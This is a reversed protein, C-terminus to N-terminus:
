KGTRWMREISDGLRRSMEPAANTLGTRMPARAPVNITRTHSKVQGIGQATLEKKTRTKGTKTTVKVREFTSRSAVRRNHARVTVGVSGGSGLEHIPWYVVDSWVAAAIRGPSVEHAPSRQFSARLRGGVYTGNRTRTRHGIGLRRMSPPFPGKGSFNNKLAQGMGFELANDLGRKIATVLHGPFAIL